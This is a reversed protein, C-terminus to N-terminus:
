LVAGALQHVDNRCTPLHADYVVLRVLCGRGVDAIRLLWLEHLLQFFLFVILRCHYTAQLIYVM